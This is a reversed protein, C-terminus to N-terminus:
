HRHVIIGGAVRSALGPRATVAGRPYGILVSSRIADPVLAPPVRPRLSRVLAMGPVPGSLCPRGRLSDYGRKFDHAAAPGEMPVFSPRARDAPGTPGAGTAPAPIKATMPCRCAPRFTRLHASVSGMTVTQAQVTRPRWNSQRRLGEGPLGGRTAAADAHSRPHPSRPTAPSILGASRYKAPGALEGAPHAKVM